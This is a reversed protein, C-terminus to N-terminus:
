CMIERAQHCAAKEKQLFELFIKAAIERNSIGM